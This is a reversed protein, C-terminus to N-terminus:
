GGRTYRNVTAGEWSSRLGDIVVVQLWRGHSSSKCASPGLLVAQEGPASTLLFFIGSKVSGTGASKGYCAAAVVM